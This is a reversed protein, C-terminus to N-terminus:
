SDDVVAEVLTVPFMVGVMVLAAIQTSETQSHPRRCVLRTLSLDCYFMWM